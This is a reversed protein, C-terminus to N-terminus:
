KKFVRDELRTIRKEHETLVGLNAVINQLLGSHKDLTGSMTGLTKGMTGLTDVVKGLLEAQQDQKILSKALLEVIRGENKM